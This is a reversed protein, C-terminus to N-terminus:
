KLGLKLFYLKGMNYSEKNYKIYENLTADRITQVNSLKDRIPVMQNYKKEAGMLMISNIKKRGIYSLGAIAAISTTAVIVKTRTKMKKPKDSIKQVTTNRANRRGWKMGIVGTHCLQNIQNYQWM